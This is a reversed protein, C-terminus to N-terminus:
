SPACGSGPIPQLYGALAWGDALQRYGNTVSDLAGRRDGRHLVVETPADPSPASRVDLVDATVVVQCPLRAGPSDTARGGDLLAGIGLLLGVVLALGM